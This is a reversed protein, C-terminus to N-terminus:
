LGKVSSVGHARNNGFRRGSRFLGGVAAQLQRKGGRAGGFFVSALIDDHEVHATDGRNKIVENERRAVTAPLKMGDAFFNVMAQFVIEAIASHADFAVVFAAPDQEVVARNNDMDEILFHSLVVCEFVKPASGLSDRQRPLAVLLERGILFGRGFLFSGVKECNEREKALM